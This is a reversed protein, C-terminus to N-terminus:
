EVDMHVFNSDIAYAYRIEPQQRVFALVMAASFGSVCFDMAKGSLHRSNAVGGVKGNHNTCRVGSSVIAASGFHGRVRDATRVLTEEPEAPFGGCKGCKCAFESRDFNEIEEWWSGPPEERAPAQEGGCVANLIRKETERGWIGDATLNHAQQFATVAQRSLKGWDGDVAGTYYGLYGLLHQKQKTTM